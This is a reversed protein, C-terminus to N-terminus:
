RCRMPRAHVSWRADRGETWALWLRDGDMSARPDHAERATSSPLATLELRALAEPSRVVSLRLSSAVEPEGETWALALADQTAALTPDRQHASPTPGLDTATIERQAVLGGDVAARQAWPDWRAWRLRYREDDTPSQAWVLVLEGRFFVAALEAIHSREGPADAARYIRRARQLVHGDRDVLALRLERREYGLVVAAGRPDLAIAVTDPIATPTRRVANGDDDFTESQESAAAVLPHRALGRPSATFVDVQTTSLMCQQRSERLIAAAMSFDGDTAVSVADPWLTRSLAERRTTAAIRGRMSGSPSCAPGGSASGFTWRSFAGDARAAVQYMASWQVNPAFDEELGPPPAPPTPPPIEDVRWAARGRQPSLESSWWSSGFVDSDDGTPVEQGEHAEHTLHHVVIMAHEGRALLSLDKPRVPPLAIDTGIVECRLPATLSTADLTADPQAIPARDPTAPQPARHEDRTSSRKCHPLAAVCLALPLSLQKSRM